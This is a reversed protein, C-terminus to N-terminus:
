QDVDAGPDLAVVGGSETASQKVAWGHAKVRRRLQPSIGFFVAHGLSLLGCHGWVFGLSVALLAYAFQIALDGAVWEAVVLPLGLFVVLLVLGFGDEARV